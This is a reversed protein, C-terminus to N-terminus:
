KNEIQQSNINEGWLLLCDRLFVFMWHDGIKQRMEMFHMFRPDGIWPWPWMQLNYAYIVFVACYKLLNPIGNIMIKIRAARCILGCHRNHGRELFPQVDMAFFAHVNVLVVQFSKIFNPMQSHHHNVSYTTLYCLKQAYRDTTVM